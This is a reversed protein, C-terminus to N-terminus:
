IDMAYILWINTFPGTHNLPVPASPDQIHIVYLTVFGASFENLNPYEVFQWLNIISLDGWAKEFSWRLQRQDNRFILISM